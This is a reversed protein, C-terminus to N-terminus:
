RPEKETMQVFMQQFIAATRINSGHDHPYPWVKVNLDILTFQPESPFLGRM